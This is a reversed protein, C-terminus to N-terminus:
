TTHLLYRLLVAWIPQSLTVGCVREGQLLNDLEQSGCTVQIIESRRQHFESATTFGMPVIKAAETLIKDAQHLSSANLQLM